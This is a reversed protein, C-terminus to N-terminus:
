NIEFTALDLEEDVVQLRRTFESKVEYPTGYNKFLQVTLIAKGSLTPRHNGYYHAQIRYTGKPAKRILYEEPGYGQTFDNSIRGGNSTLKYSYMCKEDNPETVWLDVDTNDADWNLVVRIDMPLQVLFHDPIGKTDIERPYRAILHNIENLAILHIGEFRGDYPEKVVKYLAEIAEQYKGIQALALGYDRYSQPEEPRLEIISKFLSLALKEAKLQLLKQALIRLLAADKLQMEALNTLVRVALKPQKKQVFFDCIDIYFSPQDGYKECLLLYRDYAQTLIVARLSKLYPVKPNWAAVSITTSPAAAAQGSITTTANASVVASYTGAITTAWGNADQRSASSSPSWNYTSGGTTSLSLQVADNETVSAAEQQTSPVTAEEQVDGNIMPAQIAFNAAEKQEVRKPKNWYWKQYAKWEKKIRALHNKQVLLETKELKHLAKFYAKRLSAPPVIRFELYDALSDLVLLSSASSVLNYKLGLACIEKRKVKPQEELSELKAMAWRKRQSTGNPDLYLSDLKVEQAHLVMKSDLGFQATLSKLALPVKVSLLLRQSAPDLQTTYYELQPHSEKFGLFQLYQRKLRKLAAPVQQASLDIVRGNSQKALFSLLGQDTVQSSVIPYIPAKGVKKIPDGLTQIGDSFFLIEDGKFRGFNLCSLSSAGDYHQAKLLTRLTNVRGNQIVLRHRALIEHAFFVLELKGNKIWKLYAELLEREKDLQATSRSASVDWCVTVVKPAKKRAFKCPLSMNTNVYYFGGQKDGYIAPVKPLKQTLRIHENVSKNRKKISKLLVPRGNAYAIAQFNFRAVKETLEIPMHFYAKQADQSLVSCVEFRLRKTRNPLLPYVRMQFLNGAVKELLGPDIGKRVTAEYAVRAQHKEVAVAPRLEGNMELEFHTITQGRGLPFEFEAELLRDFQNFFTIDYRTRAFGNELYTKIAVAKIQLQEQTGGKIRLTPIQNQLSSGAQNLQQNTTDQILAKYPDVAAVKNPLITWYIGLAIVALFLLVFYIRYKMLAYFKM